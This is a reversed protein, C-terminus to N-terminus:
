PAPNRSLSVGPDDELLVAPILTDLQATSRGCYLAAYEAVLATEAQFLDSFNFRIDALTLPDQTTFNLTCSSDDMVAGSLDVLPFGHLRCTLPRYDYLLCRQDSDLLLCPTDDDEPMISSLEEDSLNDLLFPQIFDPLLLQIDTIRKLAKSRLDERVAGPLNTFGSRLLAADLLTIDFLGRCCHSCGTRCRIQHPSSDSCRAFWHDVKVLLERYQTLIDTM